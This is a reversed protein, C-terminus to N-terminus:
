SRASSRSASKRPPRNRSRKPDRHGVERVMAQVFQARTITNRNAKRPTNHARLYAVDRDEFTLTLNDGSKSVKVLRWWYGGFAMDIARSLDPNRLLARHPDFLTLSLTSAGDMTREIEGGTIAEAISVDLGSRVVVDLYFNPKKKPKRVHGAPVLASSLAHEIDVDTTM